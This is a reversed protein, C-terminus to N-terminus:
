MAMWTRPTTPSWQRRGHLVRLIVVAYRGIEYVLLYHSGVPLERTSAIRGRRGMRPQDVLAAAREGFQVDLALAAQVDERAIYEFIGQREQLAPVTWFLQTM